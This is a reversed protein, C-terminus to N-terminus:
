DERKRGAEDRDMEGDALIISRVLNSIRKLGISEYAQIAFSHVTSFRYSKKVWLWSWTLALIAFLPVLAKLIGDAAKAHL